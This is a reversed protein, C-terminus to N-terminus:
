DYKEVDRGVMNGFLFVAISDVWSVMYCKTTSPRNSLTPARHTATTGTTLPDTSCNRPGTCSEEQEEQGYCSSFRNPSVQAGSM